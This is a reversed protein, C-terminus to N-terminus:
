SIIGEVISEEKEVISKQDQKLEYDLIYRPRRRSEDFTRYLYEGLVGLMIMQIGGIVLIAVLISAWGEVPSGNFFLWGIFFAYSFGLLATLMGVLTMYRIPVDSFALISDLALKFKRSLTWKSKGAFRAEKVYEISVQKFGLWALTMFVSTHKEKVRRFADVVKRDALFVDAGSSPLKIATLWNILFYYLRSFFITVPSVDKRKARVGWVIQAGEKWQHILRNIFEPPDQLDAAMVIVCDSDSNLLGATIAAHSGCNRAFRISNVRDDKEFLEQLIIPTRDSSCDDVFTFQFTYQPLTSLVADLRRHLEIINEEENYTPIVITVM